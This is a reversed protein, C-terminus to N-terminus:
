KKYRENIWNLMEPTMGEVQRKPPNIRNKISSAGKALMNVLASLVPLDFGGGKSLAGQLNYENLSRMEEDLDFTGATYRGKTDHVFRVLEDWTSVPRYPEYMEKKTYSYEDSESLPGLEKTLQNVIRKIKNENPDNIIM